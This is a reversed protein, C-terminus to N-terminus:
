AGEAIPNQDTAAPVEAPADAPADPVLALPAPAVSPDTLLIAMCDTALVANMGAPVGPTADLITEFLELKEAVAADIRAQRAQLRAINNASLTIRMSPNPM